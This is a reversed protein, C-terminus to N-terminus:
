PLSDAHEGAASGWVNSEFGYLKIRPPTDKWETPRCEREGTTFYILQVDRAALEDLTTQSIEPELGPEFLFNKPCLHAGGGISQSYFGTLVMPETTLGEIRTREFQVSTPTGGMMSWRVYFQTSVSVGTNPDDFSCEELFDQGGPEWPQYLAVAETLTTNPEDLLVPREYEVEVGLRFDDLTVLPDRVTDQFLPETGLTCTRPNRLDAFRWRDILIHREWENQPETYAHEAGPLLTIDASVHRIEGDAVYEIQVQAYTCSQLNDKSLWINKPTLTWRSKLRHNTFVNGGRGQLTQYSEARGLLFPTAYETDAPQPIQRIQKIVLKGEPSVKKFEFDLVLDEKATVRCYEEAAVLLLEYLEIYEQEWELVTNERLPVLSSRTVVLPVPGRFPTYDIQVEEPVVDAPPNTVSVAGKQSVITASWYPGRPRELTAVGNALEIEDPFSHHALVAMGADSERVSHRFRELFANDNYFSAFVKRIARLVGRENSELRDCACPGAEDGDLDDALCGSYSEYLGAGTFQESDEVNTSSRFRINENPDFGFAVLADIVANELDPGFPTVLQNEFLSRIAALDASLEKVQPPYSAYKSLRQTIQGRLTGGQVAEPIRWKTPDSLDDTLFLGSLTVTQDSGNYLEIWDAHEGAEDPDEIGTKNDAMFENIVLRNGAGAAQSNARGPSPASFFQWQGAGDISRGYSVDTQQPGFTLSDILTQGTADFLGIQEGERSLKFGLHLPGQQPEGDAWLLAHRGPALTVPAAGLVPQDLFTNWLDFSFAMALPSNNPIVRRLISLNAAKGGVYSIDAPQLDNVDAWWRGWHMMPQITLAPTQKLSLLGAKDQESLNEADLLKVTCSRDFNERTVALYVSRGVLGGARAADEDLTLHAFPVAQSRALIAVHSNPTSPALSLIGALSPLEAPVGDTLVIDDPSLDGATFAAQIRDGAFFKLTGLAWGDSYSANGQAWRATSGIPIGQSQLWDSNQRAAAYQEYTPFYFATVNPDAIVSAKIINFLRVIEDRPYPDDGVLQIGYESIPPDAWPPLIVAGLVAQRGAQRLTVDDFEKVTMGIFPELYELAFDYHYEYRRCDQYYVVNPDFGEQVIITFKVYAPSTWSEFPDSPHTIQSKWAPEPDDPQAFVASSIILVLILLRIGFRM